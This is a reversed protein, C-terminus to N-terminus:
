PKPASPLQDLSQLEKNVRTLNSEVRKAGPDINLAEPPVSDYAVSLIATHTTVHNGDVDFTMTQESPLGYVDSADSTSPVSAVNARGSGGRQPAAAGLLLDHVESRTNPYSAGILAEVADRSLAVQRDVGIEVKEKLNNAERTMEVTELSRGSPSGKVGLPTSRWKAGEPVASPASAARASSGAGKRAKAVEDFRTISYTGAAHDIETLEQKEYDAITVRAGSVTVIRNGACYEDITTSKASISDDVKRVFHIPKPFLAAAHLSVAVTVAIFAAVLRQSNM